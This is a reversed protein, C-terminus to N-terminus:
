TGSRLSQLFSILDSFEELSLGVELGERVGVVNRDAVADVKDAKAEAASNGGVVVPIDGLHVVFKGGAAAM